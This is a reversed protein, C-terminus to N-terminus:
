ERRMNRYTIATEYRHHGDAIYLSNDGFADQIGSVLEPARISWFTHRENGDAVDALPARLTGERLREAITGDKDEYLGLPGSFSAHCMRMLELRDQKAKRGTLEHPYVGDYWERLKVRAVLGRRRHRMGRFEFEHDHVYFCPESDRQLVGSETWQTFTAVAARYRSTDDSSEGSQALPHELRIMNYPSRAYLELREHDGIIDYPPCLLSTLSGAKAVDYRIGHFPQIGSNSFPESM